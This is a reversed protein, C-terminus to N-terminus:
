LGLSLLDNRPPEGAAEAFLAFAKGVALQEDSALTSLIRGIEDRRKETVQRVLERGSATPRILVERRSEPSAVREVWGGEVMRDIVRSFTSPLTGLEDALVGMRVPESGSLVVLVRFQPLSVQELAESMSRAVIALLARSATITEATSFTRELRNAHAAAGDTTPPM